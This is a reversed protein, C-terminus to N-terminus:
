IEYFVGSRIMDLIWISYDPYEKKNVIRTYLELMEEETYEGKFEDEYTVYKKM